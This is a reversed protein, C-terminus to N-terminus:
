GITRACCLVDVRQVGKRKLGKSLENVTSGTTLLDDILMVHRYTNAQVSFSHNLNSQRQKRNLQAQPSTNKIKHCISFDYPVELHRAIERSLLASQNFGRQRLKKFYLPVPIICDPKELAPPLADLLLRVLVPLLYFAERYKFEHILSRLPEEYRYVTFIQDFQPKKKICSGCLDFQKGIPMKCIRCAAEIKKFFTICSRCIAQNQEHYQSCLKCVAPLKFQQWINKWKPLRQILREM